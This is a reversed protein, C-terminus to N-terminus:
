PPYSDSCVGSVAFHLARHLQREFSLLTKVCRAFLTFWVLCPLGPTLSLRNVEANNFPNGESYFSFCSLISSRARRQLTHPPQPNTQQQFLQQFELIAKQDDTSTSVKETTEGCKAVDYFGIVRIKYREIKLVIWIITV